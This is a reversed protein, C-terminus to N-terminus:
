DFYKDLMTKTFTKDESTKNTLCGLGDTNLPTDKTEEEIGLSIVGKQIDKLQAIRRDYAKQVREPISQSRRHYLYFVAIDIAIKNILGVNQPLPLTYRQRLYGNIEEATDDIIKIIRKVQDSNENSLDVDSAKEDNVLPTLVNATIADKIDAVVCYM